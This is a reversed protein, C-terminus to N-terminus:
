IEFLFVFWLLLFDQRLCIINVISQPSFRRLSSQICMGNNPSAPRNEAWRINKIGGESLSLQVGPVCTILHELPVGGESVAEMEGFEAAFCSPFSFLYSLKSFSHELLIFLCKECLM